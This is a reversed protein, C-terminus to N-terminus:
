DEKTDRVAHQAFIVIETDVLTFQGAELRKKAGTCQANASAHALRLGDFCKGDLDVLMEVLKASEEQMLSPRVASTVEAVAYAKREQSEALARAKAKAEIAATDKIGLLIAQEGAVKATMDARWDYTSEICSIPTRCRNLIYEFPRIMRGQSDYDVISAVDKILACTAIMGDVLADLTVPAETRGELEPIVMLDRLDDPTNPREVPMKLSTHNSVQRSLEFNIASLTAAKLADGHRGNLLGEFTYRVAPKIETVTARTVVESTNSKSM